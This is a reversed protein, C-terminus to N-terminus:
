GGDRVEESIEVSGRYVFRRGVHVQNTWDRLDYVPRRDGAVAAPPPADDQPWWVAFRGDEGDTRSAPEAPRRTWRPAEPGATWRPKHPLPAATVAAKLTAARATGLVLSSSPLCPKRGLFLPREPQRLAEEVAALTPDEAAADLALAVTFVADALYQRRRIHTGRGSAGGRSEPAHRTTWGAALFDQGLDVTQFDELSTGARDRRVAIRLREQLRELRGADRHDWGIANAILGTLLSLGPTEDTVGREDVKVGGFSMLPADFRLLLVDLDAM